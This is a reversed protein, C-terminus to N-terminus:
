NKTFEIAEKKTNFYFSEELYPKESDFAFYKVDVAWKKTIIEKIEEITAVWNKNNEFDKLINELLSDLQEENIKKLKYNKGKKM